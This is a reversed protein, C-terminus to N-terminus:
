IIDEQPDMFNSTIVFLYIPKRKMIYVMKWQPWPPFNPSFCLRGPSALRRGLPGTLGAFCVRSDHQETKVELSFGLLKFHERNRFGEAHSSLSGAEGSGPSLFPYIPYAMGGVHILQIGLPGNLTNAHGFCGEGVCRCTPIWPSLFTPNIISQSPSLNDTQVTDQQHHHKKPLQLDM